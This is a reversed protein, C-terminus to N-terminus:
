SGFTFAYFKFKNKSNVDLEFNGYGGNYINYLRHENVVFYSRDKDFKIDNGANNKNLYKGNVKVDVEVNKDAGAVINVSAATFSLLIGAENDDAHEM